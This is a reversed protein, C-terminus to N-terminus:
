IKGKQKIYTDKGCDWYRLYGEETIALYEDTENTNQLINEIEPKNLISLDAPNFYYGKSFERKHFSFGLYELTDKIPIAIDSSCLIDKKSYKTEFYNLLYKYVDNNCFGQKMSINEVTYNSDFENISILAICENMFYLGLNIESNSVEYLSNETHFKFSDEKSVEQVNCLSLDIESSQLNLYKLIYDKVLDEKYKWQHEFIHILEIGKQKALTTKNLHYLEDKGLADSHWYLGNFEFGINKNPVYVDIEKMNLIRVNSEVTETPLIEKIFNCLAVEGKSAVSTCGCSDKYGNRILINTSDFPSSCHKCEFTSIYKGSSTQSHNPNIVKFGNLIDDKYLKQKKLTCGCSTRGRSTVQKSDCIFPRGCEVCKFKYKLDRSKNVSYNSPYMELIEVGKGVIQGVKYRKVELKCGCSITIDNRCKRIHDISAEFTNECYPCQFIARRTANSRGEPVWSDSTMMINQKGVLDGKKYKIPQGM